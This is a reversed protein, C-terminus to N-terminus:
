SLSDPDLVARGPTKAKPTKKKLQVPSVNERLASSEWKGCSVSKTPTKFAKAMTQMMSMVFFDWLVRDRTGVVFFSYVAVLNTNCFCGGGVYLKFGSRFCLGSFLACFTLFSNSLMSILFLSRLPLDLAGANELIFELTAHYSFRLALNMYSHPLAAVAQHLGVARQTRRRGNSTPDSPQSATPPYHLNSHSRSTSSHEHTVESIRRGISKPIPIIDNATTHISQIGSEIAFRFIYKTGRHSHLNSFLNQTPYQIIILFNQFRPCLKLCVFEHIFWANDTAFASPHMFNCLFERPMFNHMFREWSPWLRFNGLM